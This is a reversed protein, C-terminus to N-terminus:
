LFLLFNNWFLLNWSALPPLSNFWMGRLLCNPFTAELNLILSSLWTPSPWLWFAIFWSACPLPSFPFIAKELSKSKLVLEWSSTYMLTGQLANSFYQYRSEMGSTRTKSTKNKLHFGISNNISLAYTTLLSSSIFLVFHTTSYHHLSIALFCSGLRNVESRRLHILLVPPKRQWILTRM